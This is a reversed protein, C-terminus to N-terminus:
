HPNGKRPTGVTQSYREIEVGIAPLVKGVEEPPLGEAFADEVTALVAFAGAFFARKMEQRQVDHAALPIVEDQFSQWQHELLSIPTQPDTLDIVQTSGPNRLRNTM